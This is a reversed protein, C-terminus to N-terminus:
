TFSVSLVLSKEPIHANCDDSIHGSYRRKRKESNLSGSEKQSLTTSNM